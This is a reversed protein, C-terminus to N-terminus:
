RWAEWEIMSRLPGAFLPRVAGSAWRQEVLPALAKTTALPDGDLYIITAYVDPGQAAAPLQWADTSRFTWAGATGPVELLSPHHEADLWDWWAAPAAETPEEILLLVGRHPRFPVVDPSVLAQPAAHGRHAALMRLALSPRREPFRGLQALRGGLAMFDDLTEQVPDGVLYTVVNGADALPGDGALRNTLYDGDATWRQGLVIGPLQYQEPMHDLLHWRLYSGDDDSPTPPTLSIIGARVRGVGTTM